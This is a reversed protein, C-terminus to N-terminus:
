TSKRLLLGEFLKKERKRGKQLISPIKKNYNKQMQGKNNPNELHPRLV